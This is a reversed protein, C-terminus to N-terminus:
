DNTHEELIDIDIWVERKEDIKLELADVLARDIVSTAFISFNTGDFSWLVDDNERLFLYLKKNNKGNKSEYLNIQISEANHLEFYADLTNCFAYYKNNGYMSIWSLGFGNRNRILTESNLIAKDM